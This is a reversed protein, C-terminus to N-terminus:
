KAWFVCCCAFQTVHVYKNFDEIRQCEAVYDSQKLVDEICRGLTPEVPVNGLTLEGARLM